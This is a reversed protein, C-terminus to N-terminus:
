GLYSGHANTAGARIQVPPTPCGADRGHGAAKLRGRNAQREVVPEAHKREIANWLVVANADFGYQTVFM